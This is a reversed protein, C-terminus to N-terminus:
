PLFGHIAAYRAAQTRNAAGTKHLIASIHNAATREAIFLRQAIDRNSLGEAILQLVERERATLVAAARIGSGERIEARKEQVDLERLVRRLGLPEAVTRAQEALEDARDLDKGRHRLHGSWAALSHALHVPAQTRTDIEVAAEFSAEAGPLLRLSELAGLYRDASGFVAVFPGAVLNLGSYEALMPHLRKAAKHDGLALAAEVLFVLVAVWDASAAYRDLDDDLLERLVRRAPDELGLETYLALLGPVWRGTSSEDGTVLGRVRDLAGTERQVMFMQLGYPGETDDDGFSAGLDALSSCTQAASPFDGELFRRSYTLCGAVFTWYPEGTVRATRLLDGYASDLLDVDGRLYAIVARYHSAPGLHHLDGTRHALMSLQEALALREAADPPRLHHTLSCQLVHALVRDDGIDRALQM